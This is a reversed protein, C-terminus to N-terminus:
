EFDPTFDPSFVGTATTDVTFPPEDNITIETSEIFGGDDPPAALGDDFLISRYRFTLDSEVIWEWRDGDQEDVAVLPTHSVYAFPVARFADIVSQVSLSLLLTQLLDKPWVEALSVPPEGYVTVRAVMERQGQYTTEMVGGNDVVVREDIGTDQGLQLIELTAYPKALRPYDTKAWATRDVGMVADSWVVLADKIAAYPTQNTLAVPIGNDNVVLKIESYLLINCTFPFTTDM